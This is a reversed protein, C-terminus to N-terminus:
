RSRAAAISHTDGVYLANMQRILGDAGGNRAYHSWHPELSEDIRSPDDHGRLMLTRLIQKGLSDPIRRVLPGALRLLQVSPIPWSDYGVSDTLFLGRCFGPHRVAAIQVVGGGIDHGALVASEIGIAGARAVLYDAQRAM